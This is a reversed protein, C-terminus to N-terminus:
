DIAGFVVLGAFDAGTSARDGCAMDRIFVLTAPLTTAAIITVARGLDMGAMAAHSVCERDSM